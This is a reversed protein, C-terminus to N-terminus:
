KLDWPNHKSSDDVSVFERDIWVEWQNSKNVRFAQMMARLRKGQKTLTGDERMIVQEGTRPDIWKIVEPRTRGYKDIKEGHPKQELPGLIEYSIMGNNYKRFVMHVKKDQARQEEDPHPVLPSYFSNQLEHRGPLTSDREPIPKLDETPILEAKDIYPNNEGIYKSDIDNGNLVDMAIQYKLKNARGKLNLVVSTQDYVFRELETATPFDTMLGEIDFDGSNLAKPPVAKFKAYEEDFQEDVTKEQVKTNTETQLTEPNIPEDWINEVQPKAQKKMEKGKKEIFFLLSGM